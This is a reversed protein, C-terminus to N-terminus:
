FYNIWKNIFDGHHVYFYNTECINLFIGVLKRIKNDDPFFKYITNLMYTVIPLVSAALTNREMFRQNKSNDIFRIFSQDTPLYM